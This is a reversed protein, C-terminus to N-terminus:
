SQATDHLLKGLEPANQHSKTPVTIFKRTNDVFGSM